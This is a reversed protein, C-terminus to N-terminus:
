GPRHSCMLHAKNTLIGEAGLSKLRSMEEPDDTFFVNGRLGLERMYRYNEETTFERVPQVFRCGDTERCLKLTEPNSRTEWGHTTCLEIEPDIAKVKDILAPYVTFYGHDYMDYQRFLRCIGNLVDDTKAYVQINMAAKGRFEALIEEFTPIEMVDYVPAERRNNQLWFSFNFKKLESLTHEEPKGHGNSTRDITEDHLLVPVGDATGRLDFEIMDAGAEVAKRMALATNEPFEFSAGRHATIMFHTHDQYLETLTRGNM